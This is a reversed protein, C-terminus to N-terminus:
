PKVIPSAGLALDVRLFWIGSSARMAMEAMEAMEAM